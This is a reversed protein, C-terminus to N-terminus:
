AAEARALPIRAIVRTGRGPASNVELNGGLMETRERMTCLGLHPGAAPPMRHLNFGTGNDSIRIQLIPVRYRFSVVARSAHGHKVVNSLAEQIIRYVSEQAPLSLCLGLLARTNDLKVPLKHSKLIDAALRELAPPLGLNRLVSGHLGHTLHTLEELTRKAIRRLRRVRTKIGHATNVDELARIGVSLAAVLQGAGDHIERAIRRREEERVVIVQEKLERSRDRSRGLINWASEHFYVCMGGACPYADVELHHQGVLAKAVFHAQRRQERARRLKRFFDTGVANPFEDWIPKGLLHERKRGWVQEARANVYVFRWAEDIAFFGDLALFGDGVSELIEFARQHATQMEYEAQKRETINHFFIELGSRSPYVRVLFWNGTPPHCYEFETSTRSNAAAALKEQVLSGRLEPCVQLYNKGLAETRPNRTSDESGAKLFTIRSEHDLAFFGDTTWELLAQTRGFAAKGRGTTRKTGRTM